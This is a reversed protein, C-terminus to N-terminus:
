YGEDSISVAFDQYRPDELVTRRSQAHDALGFGYSFGFIAMEKANTQLHIRGGGTVCINTYCAHELQAIMPEAVNRHYPAGTRSTVFWQPEGDPTEASILVYKHAGEAIHVSALRQQPQTSSRPQEQRQRLRAQLREAERLDEANTTFPAAAPPASERSAM